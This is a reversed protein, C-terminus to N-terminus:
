LFLRSACFFDCILCPNAQVWQVFLGVLFDKKVPNVVGNVQNVQHRQNPEMHETRKLCEPATWQEEDIRHQAEVAQM